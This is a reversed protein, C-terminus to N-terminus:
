EGEMMEWNLGLQEAVEKTLPNEIEEIGTLYLYHFFPCWSKDGFGIYDDVAEFVYGSISVWRRESSKKWYNPEVKFDDPLNLPIYLNWWGGTSRDLDDGKIRPGDWSSVNDLYGIEKYGAEKITRLHGEKIYGVSISETNFKRYLGWFYLYETRCNLGNLDKGELNPVYLTLHCKNDNFMLDQKLVPYFANPAVLQGIVLTWREFDINPIEKDGKYISKLEEPSNIVYCEDQDSDVFFSTSRKGIPLESNPGEFFFYIANEEDNRCLNGWKEDQFEYPKLVVGDDPILTEM